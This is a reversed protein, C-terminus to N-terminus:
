HLTSKPRPKGFLEELLKIEDSEPPVIDPEESENFNAIGSKGQLLGEYVRQLEPYINSGREVVYRKNFTVSEALCSYPTMQYYGNEGDTRITVIMPREFEIFKDDEFKVEGLIDVGNALRIHVMDKM